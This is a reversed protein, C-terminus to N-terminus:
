TKGVARFGRAVEKQTRRFYAYTEKSVFYDNTRAPWTKQARCRRIQGRSRWPSEYTGAVEPIGKGISRTRSHHVETERQQERECQQLADLFAQMDDSQIEQIDFGYAKFRKATDESQTQKALADLTVTNSDYILILNDLGFHGAFASAESAVGEQMCGDGALCIVHQDFIRHDATNFRAAAMKARWQSVLRTVSVKGSHVLRANSARRIELYEPHGPTRSHLQRFRKIESMPLRLREPTALRLSVDVAM